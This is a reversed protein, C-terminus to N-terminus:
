IKIHTINNPMLNLARRSLDGRIEYNAGNHGFEHVLASMFSVIKEGVKDDTAPPIEAVFSLKGSKPNYDVKIKETKKVAESRLHTGDYIWGSSFLIQQLTFQNGDVPISKSETTGTPDWIRLKLEDRLSIWDRCKSHYWLSMTMTSTGATVFVASSNHQSPDIAGVKEAIALVQESPENMSPIEDFGISKEPYRFEFYPGLTSIKNSKEPTYFFTFSSCEIGEVLALLPIPSDGVIAYIIDYGKGSMSRHSLTDKSLPPRKREDLSVCIHWGFLVRNNFLVLNNCGRHWSTNCGCIYWFFYGDVWIDPGM